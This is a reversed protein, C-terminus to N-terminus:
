HKHPILHLWVSEDAEQRFVNWVCRTLGIWPSWRRRCWFCILKDDVLTPRHPLRVLENGYGARRWWRFIRYDSM